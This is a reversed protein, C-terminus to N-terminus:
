RYKDLISYIIGPTYGLASLRRGLKALKKEDPKEEDEEPLPLIKLAQAYARDYESEGSEEKLSEIASNIDEGSLGKRLLEQRILREAKGSRASLVAQRSAYAKDDIYGRNALEKAAANAEEETYGKKQLKASLEAASVSKVSLMDMAASLAPVPAKGDFVLEQVYIDTTGESPQTCLSGALGYPLALSTLLGEPRGSCSVTEEYELVRNLVSFKKFGMALGAGCFKSYAEKRTWISFFESTWEASGAALGDLYEKELSHLKKTVGDKVNRSVEEIDLGIDSCDSVVAAWWNKTDSVSIRIPCPLKEEGDRVLLPEGSPGHVLSLGELGENELVLPVLDESKYIRNKKKKVLYVTM